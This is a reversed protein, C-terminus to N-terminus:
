APAVTTIAGNSGRYRLAGDEVHWIGGGAPNGSPVVSANAIAVVGQGGGVSGPFDPYYPQGFM